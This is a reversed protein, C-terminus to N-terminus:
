VIKSRTYAGTTLVKKPRGGKMRPSYPSRCQKVIQHVRQRSINLERAIDSIGYSESNSRAKFVKKKVLLYWVSWTHMDAAKAIQNVSFGELYSRFIWYERYPDTKSRVMDGSREM